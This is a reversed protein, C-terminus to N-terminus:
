TKDLLNEPNKVDVEGASGPLLKLDSKLHGPISEPNSIQNEEFSTLGTIRGMYSDIDATILKDVGGQAFSFHLNILEITAIKM